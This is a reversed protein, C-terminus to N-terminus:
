CSRSWDGSRWGYRAADGFCSDIFSMKFYLQLSVLFLPPLSVLVLYLVSCFWRVDERKMRGNKRWSWCKALETCIKLFRFLEFVKGREGWSGMKVTSPMVNWIKMLLPHLSCLLTLPMKRCGSCASPLTSSGVSLGSIGDADGLGSIELRLPHSIHQHLSISSTM